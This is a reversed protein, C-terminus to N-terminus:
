IAGLVVLLAIIVAILWLGGVYAFPTFFFPGALLCLILTIWFRSTVGEALYVALPPLLIALIVLLVLMTDDPASGGPTEGQNPVASNEDGAVTQDNPTATTSQEEVSPQNSSESKSTQASVPADTVPAATVADVTPAPSIAPEEHQNKEETKATQKEVSADRDTGKNFDVYYGKSYHRKEIRLGSCSSFLAAVIVCLVLIQTKM